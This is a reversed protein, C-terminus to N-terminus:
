SFVSNYLFTIFLFKCGGGGGGVTLAISSYLLLFLALGRMEM